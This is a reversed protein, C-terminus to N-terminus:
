LLLAREPELPDPLQIEGALELIEIEVTRVMAGIPLGNATTAFPAELEDGLADLGFFAYAPILAVLPTVYGFSGALGLPLLLCFLWTTRHVLLTYAFPTPTTRIRECATAISTMAALRANFITYLIDSMAGDLRCQSVDRAISLLIAQPPNRSSLISDRVDPPLWRSADASAGPRLHTHLAHSFGIATHLVRTRLAQDPPLSVVTDRAFCRLEAVLQGWQKRAEWWRDYCAANRFGFIISLAVGVIGFPAATFNPLVERHAHWVWAAALSIVVIVGLRPAITPLISGRLTFLLTLASPRSRVIVPVIYASGYGGV